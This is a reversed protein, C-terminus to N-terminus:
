STQLIISSKGNTDSEFQKTIKSYVQEMKNQKNDEYKKKAQDEALLGRFVCRGDVKEMWQLFNLKIVLLDAM